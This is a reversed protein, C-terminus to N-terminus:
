RAVEAGDHFLIARRLQSLSRAGVCFMAIRLEVKLREIAEEVAAASQQAPGLFPYALGVYDAGLALAIAADLGSRLGGSGIVGVGAVGSVQRIAEPTPIGWRAFTEGLGRDAARAAEIRAWSTGGVGATDIWTVGVRALRRAVAASIGCGVEKVIVPVDLAEVVDGIQHLLGRFRRDGEPQIAEQLPNLHLALADASIMDVVRQCEQPGYGYNLQVAGLNAILPVSPAIDRVDFTAVRAEDEIALRQSGVGLAVGAREAAEALNRNIEAAQETGGTMCSILLPATLQRGFMTCGLDIEDFDLEPLANHEFRYRAFANAEAQMRPDLALEIHEAKRDRVAIEPNM